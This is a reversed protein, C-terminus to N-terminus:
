AGWGSFGERGVETEWIGFGASLYGLTFTKWAM